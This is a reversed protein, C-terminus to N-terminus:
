ILFLVVLSLITLITSVNFEVKKNKVYSLINLVLSTGTLGACIFFWIGLFGTSTVGCVLLFKLFLTLLLSMTVLTVALYKKSFAIEFFNKTRVNQNSYNVVDYKRIENAENKKNYEVEIEEDLIIRDDYNEMIIKLFRM